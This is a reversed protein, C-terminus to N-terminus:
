FVGLGSEQTPFYPRPIWSGRELHLCPVPTRKLYSLLPRLYFCFAHSPRHSLAPSPGCRPPAPAGSPRGARPRRGPGLAWRVAGQQGRGLIFGAPLTFSTARSAKSKSRIFCTLTDKGSLSHLLWLSPVQRPRTPVGEQGLPGCAAALLRSGTTPSPVCAANTGRGRDEGPFPEPRERGAEPAEGEQCGPEQTSRLRPLTDWTGSM